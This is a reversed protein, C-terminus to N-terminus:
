PCSRATRFGNDFSRNAPADESRDASRVGEPWSLFSGGRLVRDDNEVVPRTFGSDESVNATRYDDYVDDCWEWANGHMDFLGYDNPKLGAVPWTRNQSNANYWAYRPLLTESLGYYRSTTTEARGAFEWEAETPLRYGVLELHKEKPKMGPGYKGRENPEYCWQKEDIGEQKSLWNCYQAAEYWTVGTQPSDATKVWQDMNKRAVDPCDLQFRGFQEKTVLTTSIALRRGLHVRHQREDPGREPESSPSGMLFEGAHLIVFTQGHRNIFWCPKDGSLAGPPPDNKGGLKALVATLRDRQGWKNLLWEAAGHLGPDPENEFVALLKEIQPKREAVPLQADSFEGLALVLARRITVDPEEDLREFITLPDGGLPSLWHIIYSRVRPDSSFALLPWVNDTKEMRLLAVALNAQRKGRREADVENAREGARKALGVLEKEAMSIARTRNAALKSIIARFQFQEADALLDVLSEPQEALYDALTEAACFRWQQEQHEKNEDRYIAALREVLHSKAPRLAERWVVLDSDPLTVLHGAVFSNIGSWRNDDPAYTALACAAQFQQQTEPKTGLAVSWLPEIIAGTHSQLADRVVPFQTPTVVLLRDRLYSVKSEDVPLLALATHLRQTPGAFANSDEQKLLPDAWRRYGALEEVIGPVAAIEAALLQKVLAAAYDAQRREEIRRFVAFGMLTLLVFIAVVTGSRVGHVWGARQMMKRQIPNWITGNTLFRINLYEWLAPLHRDEPKDSWLVARDVLRLEARGRRTEKRKQTLWERLSPVLYDHTLQYRKEADAFQESQGDSSKVVSDTPTVLRLKKNLIELLANFQDRHRAYGSQYLLEQKTRMAGKITTGSDPLLAGLVRQAAASHRRNEPPATNSAFSDELFAVGVGKAGGVSKLTAPIWEKDKVMAAFLALRVCIVHDGDALDSIALNLFADQDRRLSRFQGLLALVKKAHRKDFLDILALNRDEALPIGLRQMFRNVHTLFDDRVMLVCQLRVGDCERLAEVLEDQEDEPTSHLLQEFQDLVILVKKGSHIRDKSRLAAHLSSEHVLYPCHRQLAALLKAETDTATAEVYVATVHQGLRPLLGARVLSSKGCGSPGYILGVQFTTEADSTEIRTKWFVLREPLGDQQYPGPLLYIFFGTHREDFSRLGQPDVKVGPPLALDAPTLPPLRLARKVGKVLTQLDNPLDAGVRVAIAVKRTLEALDTPLGPSIGPMSVKGVLVPIVLIDRKLASAIELHVWDNPDNLRRQGQRPGDAYRMDLWRDGIIALLLDCKSVSEDIKNAFDIGASFNEDFTISEEGFQEKLKEYISHAAFASDDRRYSVFIRPM